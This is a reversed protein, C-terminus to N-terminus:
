KVEYRKPFSKKMIKHFMVCIKFGKKEAEESLISQDKAYAQIIKFCKNVM